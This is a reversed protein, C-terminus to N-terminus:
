RGASVSMTQSRCLDAVAVRGNAGVKRLIRHIHNKITQESLHFEAAIEKNTLGRELLPVLQRERRTLRAVSDARAESGNRHNERVYDFLYRCLRSPCVSEGAGVARVGKVVDDASADRLICGAIGRRVAQLFVDKREELGVLLIKQDPNRHQLDRLEEVRDLLDLSSDLLLVHAQELARADFEAADTGSAGAVIVDARKRLIRALAERHM